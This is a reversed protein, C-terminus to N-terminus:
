FGRYKTHIASLVGLTPLHKSFYATHSIIHSESTSLTRNVKRSLNRIKLISSLLEQSNPIELIQVFAIKYNDVTLHKRALGCSSLGAFTQCSRVDSNTLIEESTKRSAVLLMMGSEEGLWRQRAVTCLSAEGEANRRIM